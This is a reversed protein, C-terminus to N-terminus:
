RNGAGASQEVLAALDAPVIDEQLFVVRYIVYGLWAHATLTVPFRDPLQRREIGRDLLTTFSEYWPHLIDRLDERGAEGRSSMAAATVSADGYRTLTTMLAALQERADEAVSGTDPTSAPALRDRVADTIVAAKNPWWRYLTMKAVGSREAIREMTVRHYGIETLLEEAAALAAQQAHPDRKPGSRPRNGQVAM